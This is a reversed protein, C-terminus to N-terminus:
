SGFAERAEVKSRISDAAFRTSISCTIEVEQQCFQSDVYYSDGRTLGSM